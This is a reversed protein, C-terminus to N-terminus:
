EITTVIHIFYQIKYLKLYREVYDVKRFRNVAKLLLEYDKENSVIFPYSYYKYSVKMTGLSYNRM